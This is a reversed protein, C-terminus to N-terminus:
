GGVYCGTTSRSHPQLVPREARLRKTLFSFYVFDRSPPEVAACGCSMEPGYIERRRGSGSRSGSPTSM